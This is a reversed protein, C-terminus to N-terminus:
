AKPRRGCIPSRRATWSSCGAARGIPAALGRADGGARRGRGAPGADLLREQYTRASLARALAHFEGIEAESRYCRVDLTGGSREALKRLKRRCTSRSKASFTGLYAEFDGDLRAYSRRYRQRVFAKLGPARATLPGAMDAPLAAILYGHEGAELAPLAPLGGKMAEDLSLRRRVLRRRLTFLTRAGIRLPLSTESAPLPSSSRSRPSRRCRSSRRASRPSRTAPPAGPRSPWEAIPACRPPPCPSRPARRRRRTSRPSARRDADDRSQGRPLRLAPRLARAGAQQGKQRRPHRARLQPQRDDRGSPSNCDAHALAAEIEESSLACIQFPRLGGDSRRIQTVPIEAVGDCRVPDILAPDLPLASPWPHEAGNHSSDYAFGLQRLAALTDANAAYSGSRFAMPSPAGAAILLERAKEILARQEMLNFDTLEFRAEDRRGRALDHWFSHLHLQVEQGAALIPEVMLRVPDLGYVLAPMPDVFFCAKLGHRGLQALQYALGVGAPECSLALNDRWGAGRAFHRWTLETDITLLVRTAM